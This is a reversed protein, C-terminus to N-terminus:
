NLFTSLPSLDQQARALLKRAEDQLSGRPDLKLYAQADAIVAFPNHQREHIRALLLHVDAFAPDRTVAQLASQLADSIQGLSYQVLGLCYEGLASGPNLFLGRHILSEAQSYQSRQYLVMSLAFLSPAFAGNTVDISKQFERGASDLQRLRYYALGLNHHARYSSPALQIATSFFPLSAKADGKQLLSTGKELAREAKAPM